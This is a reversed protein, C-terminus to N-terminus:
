HPCAAAEAAAVTALSTGSCARPSPSSHCDSLPAPGPAREGPTFASQWPVRLRFGGLGSGARLGSHRPRPGPAVLTYLTVQELFVGSSSVGETDLESRRQVEPVVTDSTGLICIAM